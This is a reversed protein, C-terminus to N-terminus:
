VTFFRIAGTTNERRAVVDANATNSSPVIQGIRLLPNM